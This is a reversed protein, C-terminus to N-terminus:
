ISQDCNGEAWPMGEEHQFALNADQPLTSNQSNECSLHWM